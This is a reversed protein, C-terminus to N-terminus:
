TSAEQKSLWAVALGLEQTFLEKSPVKHGNPGDYLSVSLNGAKLTSSGPLMEVGQAQLFPEFHRRYHSLDNRNQVYRIQQPRPVNGLGLASVRAGLANEWSAGLKPFCQRAFEDVYGSYYRSIVTQPQFVLALSDRILSTIQLAGFGGGSSGTVLIRQGRCALAARQIWSVCARVTDQEDYGVYWALRLLPSLALAPDSLYLTSYPTDSLTRFREFRPVAYKSRDLAGHLSVVLVESEKNHFLAHMRGRGFLATHQSLGPVAFDVDDISEYDFFAGGQQSPSQWEIRSAIDAM